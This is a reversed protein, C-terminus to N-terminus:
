PGVCADGEGEQIGELAGREWSAARRGGRLQVVFVSYQGGHQDRFVSRQPLRAMFPPKPIGEPNYKLYVTTSVYKKLSGKPFM